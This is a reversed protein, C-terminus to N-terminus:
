KVAPKVSAVNMEFVSVIFGEDRKEQVKLTGEVQIEDPYYSVSKGKPTECVITHQVQPPQGYCCAFLSPVLAFSTINEAQDMPIMFGRVKIKSGSLAQVDKPINGGKDADYEFNGLEQIGLERVEGETPPAHKKRSEASMPIQAPANPDAAPQTAAAEIQAKCVRIQEAILGNKSEDTNQKQLKEFLPLAAAYDARNLAAIARFELSGPEAPQTAPPVAGATVLTLVSVLLLRKWM